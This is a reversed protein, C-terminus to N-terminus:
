FAAIDQTISFKGPESYGLAYRTKVGKNHRTLAWGYITLIRSDKGLRPSIVPAFTCCFKRIHLNKLPFTFPTPHSTYRIPHLPPPYIPLPYPSLIPHYHIPISTTVLYNRSFFRFSLSKIVSKVNGSIERIFVSLLSLM